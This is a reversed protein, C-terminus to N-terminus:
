LRILRFKRFHRIYTLLIGLAESPSFVVNQVLLADEDGILLLSLGSAWQRLYQQESEGHVPLAIASSKLFVISQCSLVFTRM